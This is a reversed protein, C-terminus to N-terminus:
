ATTRLKVIDALKDGGREILIDTLARGGHSLAAGATANAQPDLDVVLVRRGQCALASGLLLTLTTKGVGGKQNALAITRM